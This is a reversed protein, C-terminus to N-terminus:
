DLAWDLAFYFGNDQLTDGVQGQDILPYGYDLSMQTNPNVQWILGLGVSALGELSAQEENNWGVGGELFPTLQLKEPDKTLPLRAEVSGTVGNDTVLQNERYGRVTNVGGLSFQELSLLSDPTLQSAFRTVLLQQKPLQQVWQFQGLWSVFQGDTGSDNVTADFADIGLSFQSRAALVRNPGRDVWDQSFRVVSVKSLGDEPGGEAFSFPQDDFIFTQSRRLDFALGLAFETTPTKVLPQRVGVSYTSSHSRIGLVDFDDEVIRSDGTSASFNVTGDQANMPIAYSFNYSNVGETLSYSFDMRDGVGLANAYSVYPNLQVSGASPSRYNNVSAGANFAPAEEIELSLISLGPGSGVLLQADVTDILPNIQLLQLAEEIDSQRLPRDVRRQIRDRVYGERLRTLGSIEFDELGGEVVQIQVVGNAFAQEPVFAGSTVYGASIYAQTIFSRLSLLDELTAFEGELAAIREAVSVPLQDVLVTLEDPDLTMGLLNIKEIRFQESGPVVPSTFSPTTEPVELESNPLVDPLFIPSRVPGDDEPLVEEINPLGRPLDDLRITDADAGNAPLSTQAAVLGADVTYFAGVSAIVLYIKQTLSKM